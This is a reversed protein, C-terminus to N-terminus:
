NGDYGDYGPNQKYLGHSYGIQDQPIPLYEDREPVFSGTKLYERLTREKPLYEENLVQDAIGWRVLDFFREGEMALELKREFQLAKWAYEKTWTCNEGDRYTNIVYNAAYGTGEWATVYASNKARLRIQNILPLAEDQRNLQILAEAKWLLLDAYRIVRFDLSNAGWPWGPRMYKSEPSLLFKKCGYYGYTAPERAWSENYPETTFTKWRIGIRGVTFDLRPDVNYIFGDDVTMLDGENYTDLLPIGNADTKYSNVLNQSPQFFGDGSYAIGRPVNLTNCKNFRGGDATGDEISHKVAFVTEPGTEYEVLALQQFDDLLGYKGSNIVTDCLTIVEELLEPKLAVFQNKNNQEYARYLLAKARYAIAAYKTVRGIEPQTEPLLKAAEAFEDAIMGLIEDRTYQNNPLSAVDVTKMTEDFYVIRNFLRSLNFYFHARLFRMEGLRVDREPLESESVQKLLRIASNCRQVSIYLACWTGNAIANSPYFGSFTELANLEWIDNVGGGGKYATEARVDGFAWNNEYAYRYPEAYPVALGAYASICLKDITTEQGLVGENLKGLPKSDLFDECGWFSLSLALLGLCIYRYKM